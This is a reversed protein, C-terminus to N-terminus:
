RWPIWVGAEMLDGSVVVQEETGRRRYELIHRQTLRWTGKVVKGGAMLQNLWNLRM